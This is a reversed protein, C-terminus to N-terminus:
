AASELQHKWATTRNLGFWGLALFVGGGRLLDSTPEAALAYFLILAGLGLEAWSCVRLTSVGRRAWSRVATPTGSGRVIAFVLMCGLLALVFAALLFFLLSLKM